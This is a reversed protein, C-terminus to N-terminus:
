IAVIYMRVQMYQLHSQVSLISSFIFCITVVFQLLICWVIIIYKYASHM